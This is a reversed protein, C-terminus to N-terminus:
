LDSGIGGCDCDNGSCDGCDAGCDGGADGCNAGSGCDESASHNKLIVEDNFLLKM